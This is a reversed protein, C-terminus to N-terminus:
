LEGSIACPIDWDSVRFHWGEFRCEKTWYEQNGSTRRRLPLTLEGDRVSKSHVRVKKLITGRMTPGTKVTVM